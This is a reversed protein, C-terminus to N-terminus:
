NNNKYDLDFLFDIIKALCFLSFMTIVYSVTTTIMANELMKRAVKPVDGFQVLTNIFFGTAVIMLLYALGKYIKLVSYKKTLYLPYNRKEAVKKIAQEEKRKFIAIDAGCSWCNDNVLQFSSIVCDCKPCKM